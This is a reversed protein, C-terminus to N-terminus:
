TNNIIDFQDYDNVVKADSQHLILAMGYVGFVM